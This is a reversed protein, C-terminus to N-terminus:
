NYRAEFICTFMNPRSHNKWQTVTLSSAHNLVGDWHTLRLHYPARGLIHCGYSIVVGLKEDDGPLVCSHWVSEFVSSPCVLSVCVFAYFVLAHVCLWVLEWSTFVSLFGRVCADSSKVRGGKTRKLLRIWTAKM